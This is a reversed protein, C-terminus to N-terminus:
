KSNNFYSMGVAFLYSMSNMMPIRLHFVIYKYIIVNVALWYPLVAFALFWKENWNTKGEQHRFNRLFGSGYLFIPGTTFFDIFTHWVGRAMNGKFFPMLYKM